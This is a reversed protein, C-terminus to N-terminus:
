AFVENSNDLVARAMTLIKVKALWGACRLKLRHHLVVSM